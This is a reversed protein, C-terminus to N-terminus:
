QNTQKSISKVFDLLLKAIMREVILRWTTSVICTYYDMMSCTASQHQMSQHPVQIQQVQQQHEQHHHHHHHVAAVAAAAAAQQYQNTSVAQAPSLDMMMGHSGHHNTTSCIM